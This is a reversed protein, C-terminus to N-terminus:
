FRRSTNSLVCTLSAYIIMSMQISLCLDLDMFTSFREAAVFYLFFIGGCTYRSNNFIEYIMDNFSNKSLEITSPLYFGYGDTTGIYDMENMLRYNHCAMCYIGYFLMLYIFLGLSYNRNDKKAFLLIATSGLLLLLFFEIIIAYTNSTLILVAFVVSLFAYYM